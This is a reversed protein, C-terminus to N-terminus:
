VGPAVAAGLYYPWVLLAMLGQWFSLDLYGISFLWGALWIVGFSCSHGIVVKQM